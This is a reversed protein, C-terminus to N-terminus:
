STFLKLFEVIKENSSLNECKFVIGRLPNYLMINSISKNYCIAQAMAKIIWVMDIEESTSPQINMITNNEYIVDIIGRIRGSLIQYCIPKKSSISKGYNQVDEILEKNEDLLINVDIDKYLLRTRKDAVVKLCKTIDWLVKLSYEADMRNMVTEKLHVPIIYADKSTLVQQIYKKCQKSDISIMTLLKLFETFESQIGESVVFPSYGYCKGVKIKEPHDMPLLSSSKMSMVKEPTIYRSYSEITSDVSINKPENDYQLYNSKADYFHYLEKPIESVFRTIRPKNKFANYYLYLENRARTIGVYFVRRDSSIDQKPIISDSCNIFFVVDWELGKSKHITGLCVFGDKKMVRADKSGGLVINPINQRTLQEEITYLGQNISSLIAIQELKIGKHVLNRVQRVIQEAQEEPTSFYRAIPLSGRRDSKMVKHINNPHLNASANAFDVIEKTSRFNNTLFLRKNPYFMNHFDSMYKVNAGRFSFINQADDGVAFIVMGSKYMEHIINFQLDNIDQFEDVFIYKYPKLCSPDKGGKLMNYFDHAYEGVHQISSETQYSSNCIFYKSLGDITGARIMTEYGMIMSLRKKMDDAADRTFTTLIISSEDAGNDILYKIRSLTTMTKGSGAGAIVLINTNMDEYVVAHQEDTLTVVSRDFFFVNPDKPFMKSYCKLCHLTDALANHANTIDEGYFHKYLNNLKPWRGGIISQGKKMTCIHHKKKISEILSSYGGRRVLESIIVNVDFDINHAIISSASKLCTEFKQIVTNFEIGKNYADNESIGHIAISEPSITFNEPKIIFYGQEVIKDHQALIWCISVIRCTDYKSVNSPDPFAGYKKKGSFNVMGSTETDIFINM